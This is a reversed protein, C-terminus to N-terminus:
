SRATPTSTSRPAPRRSRSARAQRRELMLAIGSKGSDDLFVLRHGKRSVFGRRKVAGNDFLGDGLAAQGRRQVPRRDRVAPPHRRARVRGAGRRQGRAAVGAGSDPGAGLQVVRAWDSEYDDSLWPFKSSSGAWTTPTTTRRHRHGVVVGYVPAGGGGPVADAAAAAPRRARAVLAGAPREGDFETRYGRPRFTGRRTLARVATSATQSGGLASRLVPM